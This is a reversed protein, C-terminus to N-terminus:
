KVKEAFKELENKTKTTDKLPSTLSLTEVLEVGAMNEALHRFAKETKGGASSIVASVKKGSLNHRRLFEWIAPPFTGAWIPMALIIQEYDAVDHSLPALGVSDRALASKGGIMFKMPGSKPPESDPILREIDADLLSKLTEAIYASSGTFSYYVILTKM